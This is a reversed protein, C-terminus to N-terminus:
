VTERFLGLLVILNSSSRAILHRRKQAILPIKRTTSLSSDSRPLASFANRNRQFFPKLQVKKFISIGTRLRLFLDKCSM